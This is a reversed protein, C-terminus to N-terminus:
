SPSTNRTVMTTAKPKANTIPKATMSTKYPVHFSPEADSVKALSFPHPDHWFFDFEQNQGASQAKHGGRKKISSSLTAARTQYGKSKENKSESHKHGRNQM